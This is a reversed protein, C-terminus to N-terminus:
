EKHKLISAKNFYGGGAFGEMIEQETSLLSEESGSQQTVAIRFSRHEQPVALWM